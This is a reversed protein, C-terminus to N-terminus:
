GFDSTTKQQVSLMLLIQMYIKCFTIIVLRKPSPLYQSKHQLHFLMLLTSISCPDLKQMMDITIFTASTGSNNDTEVYNCELCHFKNLKTEDTYTSHPHDGM